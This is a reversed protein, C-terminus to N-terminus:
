ESAAPVYYAIITGDELTNTHELVLIGMRILTTIDDGRISDTWGKPGVIRCIVSPNPTIEQETGFNYKKENM